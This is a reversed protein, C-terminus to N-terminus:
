SSSNKSKLAPALQENKMAAILEKGIEAEEMQLVEKFIEFTSQYYRYLGGRSIDCAKVIDSMTVTQFGKKKFVEKSKELIYRKTRESKKIMDKVEWCLVVCTDSLMIVSTDSKDIISLNNLDLIINLPKYVLINLLKDLIEQTPNKIM